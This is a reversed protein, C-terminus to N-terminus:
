INKMTKLGNLAEQGNQLRAQCSNEMQLSSLLKQNDKQYRPLKEKRQPQHLIYMVYCWWEYNQKIPKIQEKLRDIFEPPVIGEAVDKEIDKIDDRMEFYQDCVKKYEAELAKVSM